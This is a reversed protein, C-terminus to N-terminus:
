ASIRYINKMTMFYVLDGAQISDNGGPIITVGERLIAVIHYPLENGLESLPKNLIKASNRLKVGMMVLAGDAFEWWQRIWSLKIGAVIEFAALM